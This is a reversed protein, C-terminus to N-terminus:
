MTRSNLVSFKYSNIAHVFGAATMFMLQPFYVKACLPFRAFSAAHCRYYFISVEHFDFEAVFTQLDSWLASTVGNWSKKVAKFSTIEELQASM